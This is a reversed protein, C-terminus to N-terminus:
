ATARRERLLGRKHRERKRRESVRRNSALQCTLCVREFGDRCAANPKMKLNDAELPHGRSCSTQAYRGGRVRGREVADRVNQARTGEILHEPNVCPPNDCTHRTVGEVPRGLKEALAARSAVRSGNVPRSLVGYGGRNRPGDYEICESM